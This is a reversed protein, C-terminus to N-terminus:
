SGPKSGPEDGHSRRIRRVILWIAVVVLPVSLALVQKPAPIGTVTPLGGLMYSALGVVYYSIAAVSLGEVTQQLRLQLRARDNMSALLNRNQKEVEVDVWTRLLQTTRSLKRSLNAQREEVSRVTRMAPAIRRTLFQSWSEAGVCPVEKLAELRELVIEHYARSAGFRFLSSAAQAELGAALDTLQALLAESNKRGSKRIADTLDALEDEMRKLRASLSQALSLGLMCFVRYTEIEILRQALAGRRNDTLGRDLIYVRTLGDSDQRFDTLISAKGDEVLSHCLSEPDAAFGPATGDVAWDHIELRVGCMAAGPPNFGDGFPSRKRWDEDQVYPADWVYTSFESHREWRLSGDDWPIIHYRAGQGPPAAGRKRCLEAIVSADVLAGGETVFALQVVTRSGPLQPHPRSHVEAIAAARDRHAPSGAVRSAAPAVSAADGAEESKMGM